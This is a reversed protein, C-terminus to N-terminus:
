TAPPVFRLANVRDIVADYSRLLLDPAASNLLTTRAIEAEQDFESMVAIQQELSIGRLLAIALTSLGLIEGKLADTDYICAETTISASAKTRPIAEPCRIATTRTSFCSSRATTGIDSCTRTISEALFCGVSM